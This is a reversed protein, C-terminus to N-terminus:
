NTMRSHNGILIIDEHRGIVHVQKTHSQFQDLYNKNVFVYMTEDSHWRKWFATENLLIEDTNQFPMSYWLERVWNDREAITPSEWDAVLIITRKLYLPVDQYFKFYNVVTDTPQLITELKKVLPKASNPNLHTAGMTLSLLMAASTLTCIYFLSSVRLRRWFLTVIIASFGLVSGVMFLTPTASLAIDMWQYYPLAFFAAALLTNFIVFLSMALKLGCDAQSKDWNVALQHGVLLALAPFIPIIYSITKSHPISFFTFVVMAWILLFLTATHEERAQWCSRIQSFLSQLLFAAWPLFGVIIVPVYFWHPSPNNFEAASLFRTVQQTVFFFHLFEPNARQVLVFWPLTIALVIVVGLGLRMSTLLRWRSLLLIWLGGIMAPFAIAILGKTLFGLGAFIYALVFLASRSKGSAGTALLFSLLSVTILVAIELDLNAYHSTCFYLPTTALIIASLVGTRRDFLRRGAVYVALCGAVGYLAPFFRVAWEHIGFWYMALAQLWYYLVPKDLFAVGNVRPTIFDGSALMERAVESYRGEDPTFLPYGGLWIFYLAGIALTLLLIDTAWNRCNSPQPNFPM